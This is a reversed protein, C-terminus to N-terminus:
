KKKRNASRPSVRLNSKNNSGGKALPIVHDVDKGDGKSVRGERQLRARANNRKARNKKQEPSAHYNRYERAFDRDEKNKYPM